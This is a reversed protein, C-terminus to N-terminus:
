AKRCPNSCDPCPRRHNSPHFRPARRHFRDGRDTHRGSRPGAPFPLSGARGWGRLFRASCRETFLFSPLPAGGSYHGPFCSPHALHPSLFKRGTSGTGPPYTIFHEAHLVSLLAPATYQLCHPDFSPTLSHGLHLATASGPAWNQELHPARSTRLSSVAPLLHWLQPKALGGPVVYQLRHLWLSRQGSGWPLATALLSSSLWCLAGEERRRTVTHRPRRGMAKAATANGRQNKGISQSLLRARYRALSVVISPDNVRLLLSAHLVM